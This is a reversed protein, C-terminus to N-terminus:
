TQQRRCGPIETWTRSLSVLGLAWLIRFRCGCCQSWGSETGQLGTCFTRPESLFASSINPGFELARSLNGCWESAEAPPLLAHIQCTSPTWGSAEGFCLGGWIIHTTWRCTISECYFIYNNRLLSTHPCLLLHLSSNNSYHWYQYNDYLLVTKLIPTCQTSNKRSSYSKMGYSSPRSPKRWTSKAPKPWKRTRM